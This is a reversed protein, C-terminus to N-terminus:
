EVFSHISVKQGNNLTLTLKNKNLEVDDVEANNIVVVGENKVKNMTWQSLYEPLVKGMNGSERFIQYITCKTQKATFFCFFSM